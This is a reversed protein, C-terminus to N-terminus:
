SFTLESITQPKNEEVMDVMAIYDNWESNQVSSSGWEGLSKLLPYKEKITEIVDKINKINADPKISHELNYPLRTISTNFSLDNAFKLANAIKDKFILDSVKDFFRGNTVTKLAQYNVVTQITEDKHLEYYDNLHSIRNIFHKEFRRSAIIVFVDKAVAIKFDDLQSTNDNISDVLTYYCKTEDIVDGCWKIESSNIELTEKEVYSSGKNSFKVKLSKFETKRKGNPKRKIKTNDVISFMVMPVKWENLEKIADLSRRVTKANYRKTQYDMESFKFLSDSELEVLIYKEHENNLTRTRGVNKRPMDVFYIPYNKFNLDFETLKQNRKRGEASTNVLTFNLYSNNLHSNLKEGKYTIDKRDLGLINRFFPVGFDKGDNRMFDYAFLSAEFYSSNADIVEDFKERLHSTFKAFRSEIKEITKKDYQVSERNASITLEGTKFSVLVVANPNSYNKRVNVSNHDINYVIGDILLYFGDTIIQNYYSHNQNEVIKGGDHSYLEDIDLSREFNNYVPKKDWFGTARYIEKEFDERDEDKIPIVIQTGNRESTDCENVLFMKGEKGGEIATLYTYEKGDVRTIISFSDTYSFPTKAGLGFGGTQTNTNRKTSSGYNVFVDAMREPSIGTGEDQFVVCTESEFLPNDIFSIQIAKSTRAERNADRSNSSIERCVSAIPNSYMKSRLIDLILGMDGEKIGYQLEQFGESKQIQFSTNKIKM